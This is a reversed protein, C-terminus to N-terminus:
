SFFERIKPPETDLKKGCFPCYKFPLIETINRGGVIRSKRQSVIGEICRGDKKTVVGLGSFSRGAGNTSEILDKICTHEQHNDDIM